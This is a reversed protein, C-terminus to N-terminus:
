IAYESRTIPRNNQKHISTNCHQDHVSKRAMGSPKSMLAVSGKSDWHCYHCKLFYNKEGHENAKNDSDNNMNLSAIDVPML